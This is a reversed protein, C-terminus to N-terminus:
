PGLSGAAGSRSVGSRVGLDTAHEGEPRPQQGALGDGLVGTRAAFMRHRRVSVIKTRRAGASRTIGNDHANAVSGCGDDRAAVVATPANRVAGRGQGGDVLNRGREEHDPWMRREHIDRVCPAMVPWAASFANRHQETPHAPPSNSARAPEAPSPGALMSCAGLQHWGPRRWATTISCWYPPGRADVTSPFGSTGGARVRV